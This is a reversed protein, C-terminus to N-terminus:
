PVAQQALSLSQVCRAASKGLDFMEIADNWVGEFEASSRALAAQMAQVIAHPEALPVVQGVGLSNVLVGLDGVDTAIVPLHMQLADGFILPISEIRSPIVLWNCARMYAIVTSLDAYGGLHIYQEYGTIRRRLHTELSGVGFMHLHARCGGELLLRMAEVLIDPGKNYEYRGIFLFHPGDSPLTVGASMGTLPLRRSSPVFECPADALSAVQHALEVGDAFRFQAGRLVLRVIQDGWPYKHRAWIDSGLAWVGYPIKHWKWALWSFLGSPIAWMALLAELRRARAYRSVYVLGSVVLTAYRLLTLPNRMSVSALDKEGGWWPIYHVEILDPMEAKGYKRPTLVHVQHGLTVLEQALDRVFVGATVTDTLSLPYSSTVIGIRM